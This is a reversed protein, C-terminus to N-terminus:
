GASGPVLGIALDIDDQAASLVGGAVESIGVSTGRLGSEALALVGAVDLLGGYADVEPPRGTLIAEAFDALELAILYSDATAFDLEYDSSQPGFLTAALGDLEFGGVASRLQPGSVVGSGSRVEIVGGSRDPPVTMTAESGYIVRAPGPGGPGSPLYALQALCGSSTRFVGLLSDDGTARIPALDGAAGASADQTSPAYRLPEAVFSRGFVSDLDGLYYRFLDVFHVGMDLAISGRERQHRWPTLIVERTGGLHSEVLLRVEGLIGSAITAAALRNVPDHRYNEATALTAKSREAATVMARCARVTVGLPKECVVHKGASLAPVVLEHHSGPDTVIDLATVAQDALVEAFDAYLKPRRGLSGHAIEAARSAAEGDPDCVGVLEFPDQGSRRLAAYGSLHRTGM